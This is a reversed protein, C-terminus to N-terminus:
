LYKSLGSECTQTLNRICENLLTDNTALHERPLEPHYIHFAIAGFKLVRKRIGSNILRVAIESDERGWGVISENYGNVKLLDTKWFAMNCGRVYTINKAKYREAMLSSLLASRLGNSFNTIGKSFVSVNISKSRILKESLFASMQVRTGTIFTKTKSFRIHDKIFHKELILDGDIQIIYSGSSKAIAKNRIRSLQFGEDKQWVHILPVPFDKQYEKILTQTEAGSGDDAIIVEDPLVTQNGISTLCLNLAEPWNYTSVILSINPNHM